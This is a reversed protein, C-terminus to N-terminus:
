SFEQLSIRDLGQWQSYLSRELYQESFPANELVREMAETCM